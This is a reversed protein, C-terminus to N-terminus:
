RDVFDPQRVDGVNGGLFSKRVQNGNDVQMRSLDDSPLGASCNIGQQDDRGQLLGDSINDITTNQTESNPPSKM